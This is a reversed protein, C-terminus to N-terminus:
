LRKEAAATLLGNFARGRFGVGFGVVVICSGGRWWHVMAIGYTRPQLEDLPKAILKM